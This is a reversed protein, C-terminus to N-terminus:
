YLKGKLHTLSKLLCHTFITKFSMEFSKLYFLKIDLNTPHLQVNVAHLCMNKLKIM